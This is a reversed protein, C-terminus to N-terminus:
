VVLQVFLFPLERMARARVPDGRNGASNRIADDCLLRCGEGQLTRGCSSNSTCCGPAHVAARGGCAGLPCIGKLLVM